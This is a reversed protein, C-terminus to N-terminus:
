IFPDRPWQSLSVFGPSPFRTDRPRGQGGPGRLNVASARRRCRGKVYRGKPAPGRLQRPTRSPSSSTLSVSSCTRRWNRNSAQASVCTLRGGRRQPLPEEDAVPPSIIM